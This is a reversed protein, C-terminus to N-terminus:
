LGVLVFTTENDERDQINEKTIVLPYIDALIKNGICAVNKPLKGNAIAEAISANDTLEGTGGIKAVNPFFKQLNNECQRIAQEHWMITDIDEIKADPHLLLSHRVSIHYNKLFKWSFAGLTSMTEYVLGGISNAIAFQGFDISGNNLNELVNETTYLFIIETQKGAFFDPNKALFEQIAIHNFSGEGWQIGIRITNESKQFFKQQGRKSMNMVEKWINTIGTKDAFNKSIHELIENERNKQFIPLSNEAKYRGVEDTITLRKAFLELIQADIQSIEDRLNDLNKM